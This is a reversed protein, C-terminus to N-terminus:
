EGGTQKQETDEKDMDEGSLDTDAVDSMPPILDEIQMQIPAAALTQLEIRRLEAGVSARRSLRLGVELDGASTVENVSVGAVQISEIACRACSHKSVIALEDGVRLTTVGALIGVVVHGGFHTEAITMLETLHGLVLGRRLIGEEVLDALASALAVVFRGIAAIADISLVNDVKRHAAENRFDVFDSLEKEPTSTDARETRIFEAVAPHKNIFRGCHEFGLSSFLRALMDLRLNQREIFFATPLLKYGAAGSLGAALERVIVQEELDKYPGKEGIKLLIQGIGIRHQTVISSPLDAYSAYLEPLLRVYESVLSGVFREYASYLRTLAACHDYIQWDLKAPAVPLLQRVQHVVAATQDAGAPLAEPLESLFSRQALLVDRVADNIRLAREITEVESRLQSKLSSFM